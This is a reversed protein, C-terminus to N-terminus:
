PRPDSGRRAWGVGLGLVYGLPPPLLLLVAWVLGHLNAYRTLFDLVLATAVIVVYGGSAVLWLRDWGNAPRFPRHRALFTAGALIGLLALPYGFMPLLWLLQPQDLVVPQARHRAVAEADPEVYGKEGPLLYSDRNFPISNAHLAKAEELLAPQDFVYRLAYTAERELLVVVFGAWAVSLVAWTLWISRKM